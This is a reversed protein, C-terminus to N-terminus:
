KQAGTAATAESPHILGRFDLMGQQLLLLFAALGGMLYFYNRKILKLDTHIEHMVEKFETLTSNINNYREECVREHSQLPTITKKVSKKLASM